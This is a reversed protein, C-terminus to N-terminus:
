LENELMYGLNKLSLFSNGILLPEPPDWFPDHDNDLDPLSGDEFYQNLLDRMMFLRNQFKDTDWQYYYGEENNDVKVVVDTRSDMLNGHEPIIRVMKTSFALKRKLEKAILNAENVMPLVLGLKKELAAFEAQRNKLAIEEKRIREKRDGEEKEAKIKDDAIQKEMEVRLQGEKEMAEQKATEDDKKNEVEDAMAKMKAEYEEILKKQAIERALREAEMKAELEKMKADMEAQQAEKEKAKRDAEKKDEQTIKEQM